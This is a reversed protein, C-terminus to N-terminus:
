RSMAEAIRVFSGPDLQEARLAPSIGAADLVAAAEERGLLPAFNNLLTKRRSSLAVRVAKRYAEALREPVLPAPRRTLVVVRSRIAPVPHFDEPAADLLDTVAFYPWLQLALRGSRRGGEEAHMREAVERQLMLVAKRVSGFGPELLRFMVPSSVSYPLNGAIGEFPHGPLSEPDVELIDGRVTRMGTGAFRGSLHAAMRASIEVVTLSGCLPLLLETLSGLGPGIELVSGPCAAAAAIRAAVSENVLFSQGLDRDPRVGVEALLRRVDGIRM